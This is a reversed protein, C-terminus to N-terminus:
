LYEHLGLAMFDSRLAALRQDIELPDIALSPPADAMLSECLARDAAPLEQVLGLVDLLLDHRHMDGSGSRATLSDILAGPTQREALPRLRRWFPWSQVLAAGIREIERRLQSHIAARSSKAEQGNLRRFHDARDRGGHRVLLELWLEQQLDQCDCPQLWYRRGLRFSVSRVIPAAIVCWGPLDRDAHIPAHPAFPFEVSPPNPEIM